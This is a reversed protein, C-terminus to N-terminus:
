KLDTFKKYRKDIEFELSYKLKNEGCSYFFVLYIKKLLYEQPHKSFDFLPRFHWVDKERYINDLLHLNIPIEIFPPLILINEEQKELLTIEYFVLKRKLGNEDIYYSNNWDIYANVDCKNTISIRFGKMVDFEVNLKLYEDEFYNNKSDIIIKDRELKQNIVCCVEFRNLWLNRKVSSCSIIFFIFLIIIKFDMTRIIYFKLIISIIFLKVVDVYIRSIDM